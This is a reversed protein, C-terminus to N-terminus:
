RDLLSVVGPLEKGELFEMAAGGGSSVHSIKSYLKYKNLATITDGGGAVTVAQSEAVANAISKTGNSFNDWEFVGLPGNWFITRAKSIEKSFLEISKQGIDLGMWDVPISQISVMKREADNDFDKAAIIDVPLVLNVNDKKALELM